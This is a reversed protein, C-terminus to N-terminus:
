TLHADDITTYVAYYVDGVLHSRRITVNPHDVYLRGILEVADFVQGDHDTHTTNPIPTLAPTGPPIGTTKATPWPSPAPTLCGPLLQGGGGATGSSTGSSSSSAMSGGAGSSESGTSSSSADAGSSCAAPLLALLMLGLYIRM